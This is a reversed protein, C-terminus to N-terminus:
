ACVPAGWNGINWGQGGNGSAPQGSVTGHAGAELRADNHVRGGTVVVQQSLPASMLALVARRCYRASISRMWEMLMVEAEAEPCGVVQMDAASIM